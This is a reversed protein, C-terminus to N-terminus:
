ICVVGIGPIYVCHSKLAVFNHDDVFENGTINSSINKFSNTVVKNALEADVHHASDDFPIIHIKILERGNEAYIEKLQAFFENALATIREEM